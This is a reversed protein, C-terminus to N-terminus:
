VNSRNSKTRSSIEVSKEPVKGCEPCREPTARLDYGCSACHGPAVRRPRRIFAILGAAPLLAFIATSSWLAFAFLSLGGDGLYPETGYTALNGSGDLFYRPKDGSRDFAIAFGLGIFFGRGGIDNSHANSTFHAWRPQHAV